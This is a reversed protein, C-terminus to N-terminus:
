VLTAAFAAVAGPADFDVDAQAFAATSMAGSDDEVVARYFWTGPAVDELLLETGPVAVFAINTWPLEDSVRAAIRVGSLPRQRGGVNPLSWTLLVNNM